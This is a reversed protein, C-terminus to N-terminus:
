LASYSSALLRRAVASYGKRTSAVLSGIAETSVSREFFGRLTFGDDTLLFFVGAIGADTFAVGSFGEDGFTAISFGWDGSLHEVTYGGEGFASKVFSDDGLL